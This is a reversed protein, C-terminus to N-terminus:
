RQSLVIALLLCGLPVAILLGSILINWLGRWASRYGQVEAVTNCLLVMSWIAATVEIVGCVMLIVLRLPREELMPMEEQFLENGFLALQPVWLPLFLVAPVSAWSMAAKIEGVEGNAGLWRGTWRVLRSFIELSILGAIPGVVCALALIAGLPLRDGLNRMTARDLVEGVGALCAFLTVHLGPANDVIERITRRPHIWISALYRASM